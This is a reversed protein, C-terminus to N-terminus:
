SFDHYHINVLMVIKVVDEPLGNKNQILQEHLSKGELLDMVM